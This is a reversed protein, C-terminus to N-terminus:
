TARRWAELLLFTAIDRRRRKRRVPTDPIGLSALESRCAASSPWVPASDRAAHPERLAARYVGALLEGETMPKVILVAGMAQADRRLAQDHVRSTVVVSIQPRMHRALLALHLGNYAGLRIDTVLAALPESRIYARASTFSDTAIVTLGASTLASVLFMRDAVDPEVVLAAPISLGSEPRTVTRRGELRANRKPNYAVESSGTNIRIL